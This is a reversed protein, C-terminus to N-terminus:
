RSLFDLAVNALARVGIALAAEDMEYYETHWMATIGRAQNKVGVFFYFGPMQQQYYSFDESVMQLQPTLVKEGFVTKLAAISATSLGPDNFTVPANTFYNLEYSAGYSATVGKLIAEMKTKVTEPGDASFTRVTGEMEVMDAIVNYRNGGSMRGITLVTPQQADIQRAPITQFASVIQAAIPIPDIGTHPMAGHTKKGIVKLTFRSASAMAPGSRVGIQGVEIQPDLHLGFIVDPKPNALGNAELVRLAGTKGGDPDGEEAPQFLLMVTGPIEARLRSLVDAVGLLIATHGDHGCSHNVNPVLSKYAAAIAEQIPLADMDARIAVVKGPRGGKLIGVVGTIGVGTRVEDFKLARLRDAVIGATRTERFGLEPHQHLDRRTAILAPTIEAAIADVRTRTAAPVGPAQAGLSVCLATLMFPWSAGHLFRM